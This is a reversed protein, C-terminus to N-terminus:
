ASLGCPMKLAVVLRLQPGRGEPLLFLYSLLRIHHSIYKYFAKEQRDLGKKGSTADATLYTKTMKAFNRSIKGAAEVITSFHGPTGM